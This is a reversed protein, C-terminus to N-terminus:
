GEQAHPYGHPEERNWQKMDVRVRGMVMMFRSRMMAPDRVGHERFVKITFKPIM